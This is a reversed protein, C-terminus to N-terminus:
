TVLGKKAKRKASKKTARSGIMAAIDNRTAGLALLSRVLLEMSVSADVSEM